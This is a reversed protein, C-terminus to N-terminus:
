NLLFQFTSKGIQDIIAGENDKWFEEETFLKLNRVQEEFLDRLHPKQALIDLKLMHEQDISQQM